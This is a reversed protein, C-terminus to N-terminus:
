LIALPCAAHVGFKACPPCAHRSISQRNRLLPWVRDTLGSSCFRSSGMFVRMIAATRITQPTEADACSMAFVVVILGSVSAHFSAGDRGFPALNTIKAPSGVFGPDITM